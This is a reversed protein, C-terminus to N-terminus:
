DGRKIDKTARFIMADRGDSYTYSVNTNESSGHNFLDGFPIMYRLLERQNAKQMTIAAGRSRYIM